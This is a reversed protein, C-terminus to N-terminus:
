IDLQKFLESANQAEIVEEGRRAKRITEATLVNPTEYEAIYLRILDRVIQAAPRHRTAAVAMFQDRLEPEMQISMQVEKAM